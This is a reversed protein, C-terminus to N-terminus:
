TWLAETDRKVDEPVHWDWWRLPHWAIPLLEKKISAKQARRKQYPNCWRIFYDNNDFYECWMEQLVVFWDPVGYLWWPGAKVARICM